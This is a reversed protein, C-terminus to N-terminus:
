STKKIVWYDFLRPSEKPTANEIHLGKNGEFLWVATFASVRDSILDLRGLV